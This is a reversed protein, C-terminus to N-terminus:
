ETKERKRGMKKEEGEGIPNSLLRVGEAVKVKRRRKEEEM